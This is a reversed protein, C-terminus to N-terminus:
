YLATVSLFLLAWDNWYPSRTITEKCLPCSGTPVYLLSFSLYYPGRRIWCFILSLAYTTSRGVSIAIEKVKLTTSKNSYWGGLTDDEWKVWELNLEKWTLSVSTSWIAFPIISQLSLELFLILLRLQRQLRGKVM